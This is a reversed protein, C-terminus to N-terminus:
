RRRFPSLIAMEQTRRADARDLVLNNEDLRLSLVQALKYLFKSALAPDTQLLSSFARRHLVLLRCDIKATVTASRPRSNLLAMEGFHEGAGVMTVAQERRTVVLEGDVVVFLGDSFEGERIVEDGASFSISDFANFVRVLEGMSMDMFLTIHRLTSIDNCVANKRTQAVTDATDEGRVVLASINDRGGRDNASDVLAEVIKAVGIAQSLRGRLEELNGFYNYLGDSCLLFVDGPVFDVALTDVRVAAQIGVARTVRDAFPSKAADEAGMMGHRIADNRFTHDESLQYMRGDRQMYLRSDGVHAMIAMSGCTSPLCLLVTCTTGMGHSGRDSTALAYVTSSAAEVAGRLARTLTDVQEQSGDFDAITASHEGMRERITEVALTSAVDGAAHGGMGDCVAYLGFGAGCLIADENQSRKCGVDTRGFAQIDMTRRDDCERRRNDREGGLPKM